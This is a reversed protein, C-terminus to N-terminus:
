IIEYLIGNSLRIIYYLFNITLVFVAILLLQKKHKFLMSHLAFWIAVLTFPSMLNYKVYEDFRM